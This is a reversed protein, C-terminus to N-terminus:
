GMIEIDMLLFNPKLTSILRVGDEVNDAHGVVEIGPFYQKLLSKILAVEHAIDEIIITKM